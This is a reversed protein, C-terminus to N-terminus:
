FKNKLANLLINNDRLKHTVNPKKENQIQTTVIKSRNDISRRLATMGISKEDDLDRFIEIVEEALHKATLKRASLVMDKILADRHDNNRVGSASYIIWSIAAVLAAFLVWEM